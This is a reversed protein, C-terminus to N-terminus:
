GFNMLTSRILSPLQLTRGTKWANMPHSVTEANTSLPLFVAQFVHFTKGSTLSANSVRRRMSSSMLSDDIDTNSRNTTSNYSLVLSGTLTLSTLFHNTVCFDLLRSFMGCVCAVSLCCILRAFNGPLSSSCPESEWDQKELCLLIPSTSPCWLM